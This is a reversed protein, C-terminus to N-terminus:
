IFKIMDFSNNFIIGPTTKLLEVFRGYDYNLMVEPLEYITKIHVFTKINRKKIINIIWKNQNNINDITNEHISRIYKNNSSIIIYELKAKKIINIFDLLNINHKVLYPNNIIYELPFYGYKDMKNNLFPVFKNNIFEIITQKPSIDVIKFKLIREPIVKIPKHTEDKWNSSKLNKIYHQKIKDNSLANVITNSLRQDTNLNQTNANLSLVIPSYPINTYSEPVYEEANISLNTTIHPEFIHLKIQNIIITIFNYMKHYNISLYYKIIPDELFSHIINQLTDHNYYKINKELRDTNGDPFVSLYDTILDEINPVVM